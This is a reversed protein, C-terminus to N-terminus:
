APYQLALGLPCMKNHHPDTPPNTPTADPRHTYVLTPNSNASGATAGGMVGQEGQAALRLHVLLWLRMLTPPHLCARLVLWTPRVSQGHPQAHPISLSLHAKVNDCILSPMTQQPAHTNVEIDKLNFSSRFLGASTSVCTPHDQQSSPPDAIPYLQVPTGTPRQQHM